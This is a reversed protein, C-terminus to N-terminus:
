LEECGGTLVKRRFSVRSLISSLGLFQVEKSESLNRMFIPVWSVQSGIM